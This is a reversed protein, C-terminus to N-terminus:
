EPDAQHTFCIIGAMFRYIYGPFDAYISCSIVNLCAMASMGLSGVGVHGCASRFGGKRDRTPLVYFVELANHVLVLVM